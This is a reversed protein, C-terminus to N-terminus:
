ECVRCSDGRRRTNMSQIASCNRSRSEDVSHCSCSVMGTIAGWRTPRDAYCQTAASLQCRRGLSSSKGAPTPFGSANLAETIRDLSAAQLKKVLPALTGGRPPAHAAGRQSVAKAVTEPATIVVGAFRASWAPVDPRSM